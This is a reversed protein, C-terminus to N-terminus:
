GEINKTLSQFGEFDSQKKKIEKKPSISYIFFYFTTRIAIDGV